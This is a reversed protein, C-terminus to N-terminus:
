IPRNLHLLNNLTRNILPFNKLQFDPRPFFTTRSTDRASLTHKRPNLRNPPSNLTPIANKLHFHPQTLPGSITADSLYDSFTSFFHGYITSVM